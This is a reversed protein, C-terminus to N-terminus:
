RRARRSCAAGILTGGAAAGRLASIVLGAGPPPPPAASARRGPRAGDDSEERRLMAARLGRRASAGVVDHRQAGPGRRLPVRRADPQGGRPVRSERRPPPLLVHRHVERPRAPLRALPTGAPGLHPERRLHRTPHHDLPGQGVGGRVAAPDTGVRFADGGDRRRRRRRRTTTAVRRSESAAGAVRVSLHPFSNFVGDGRHQSRWTMLCQTDDYYPPTDCYPPWRAFAPDGLMDLCYKGRDRSMAVFVINVHLEFSLGRLEEFLVADLWSSFVLDPRAQLIVDFPRERAREYLELAAYVRAWRAWGDLWRDTVSGNGFDREYPSDREAYFYAPAFARRLAEVGTENADVSKIRTRAFRPNEDRLGVDMFVVPRLPDLLARAWNRQLRPDALTRLLGCVALAVHM